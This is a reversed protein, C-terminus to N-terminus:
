GMVRYEQNGCVGGVEDDAFPEVMSRLADTELVTKADTLLLIDGAAEAVASNISALKGARPLELVDVWDARKGRAVEATGDTSGDSAVIMQLRDRPYDLAATNEIKAAITAAENFAALIVSVSPEIPASRVPRTSVRSLALILLPYGFYIYVCGALSGVFVVLWYWSM